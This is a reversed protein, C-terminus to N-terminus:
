AIDNIFDNALMRVKTDFDSRSSELLTAYENITDNLYQFRQLLVFRNMILKEILQRQTEANRFGWEAWEEFSMDLSLGNDIAYASLSEDFVEDCGGCSLPASNANFPEKALLSIEDITSNIHASELHLERKLPSLKLKEQKNALPILKGLTLTSDFSVNKAEQSSLFKSLAKKLVIPNGPSLEPESSFPKSLDILERKIQKHAPTSTAFSHNSQKGEGTEHSRDRKM